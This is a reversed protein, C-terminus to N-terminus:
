DNVELYKEIYKDEIKDTDAKSMNIQAQINDIESQMKDIEQDIDPESVKVALITFLFISLVFVIGTWLIIIFFRGEDKM